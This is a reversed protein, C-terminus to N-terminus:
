IVNATGLKWINVTKGKMLLSIIELKLQITWQTATYRVVHCNFVMVHIDSKM